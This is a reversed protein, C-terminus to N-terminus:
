VTCQLVTIQLEIAIRFDIVTIEKRHKRVKANKVSYQVNRIVTLLYAIFITLWTIDYM